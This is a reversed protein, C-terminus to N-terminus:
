AHRRRGLNSVILSVITVLYIQGLLAEAVSLTHGLNTHATLDGYGLTALTTFSFYMFHATTGAQGGAFFPVGGVRDLTGYLAAFFMGLLMYACLVGLVTDLTVAQRARLERVVGLFVAPPAIAVLLGNAVRVSRDDVHGQIARALSVAAVLAVLALAARMVAPRVAAIRLAFIATSGVLLTIALQEWRGPEAIGEVAFASCLAVLLPAFARRAREDESADAAGARAARHETGAQQM